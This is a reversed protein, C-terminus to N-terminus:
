LQLWIAVTPTMPLVTMDHVMQENADPISIIFFKNVPNVDSISCALYRITNYISQTMRPLRTNLSYSKDPRAPWREPGPNFGPVPRSKKHTHESILIELRCVLNVQTRKLGHSIAVQTFVPATEATTIQYKIPYQPPLGVAM